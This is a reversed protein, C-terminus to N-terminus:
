ATRYIHARDPPLQRPKQPAMNFRDEQKNSNTVEGNLYDQNRIPSGTHDFSFKGVNAVPSDFSGLAWDAPGQLKPSTNYDIGRVKPSDYM